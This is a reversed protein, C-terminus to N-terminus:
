GRCRLHPPPPHLRLSNLQSRPQSDALTLAPSSYGNLRSVELVDQPTDAGKSWHLASVNDLQKVFAKAAQDYKQRSKVDESDPQFQLLLTPLELTM